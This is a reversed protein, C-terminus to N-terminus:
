GEHRRRKEYNLYKNLQIYRTKEPNWDCFVNLHGHINRTLICIFRRRRGYIDGYAGCVYGYGKSM